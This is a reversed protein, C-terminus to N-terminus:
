INEETDAPRQVNHRELIRIMDDVDVGGGDSWISVLEWLDGALTPTKGTGDCEPCPGVSYPNYMGVEAVWDGKDEPDTGHGKCHACVTPDPAPENETM